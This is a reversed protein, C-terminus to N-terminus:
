RISRPGAVRTGDVTSYNVTVAQNSAASLTVTFTMNTLQPTGANKGKTNLKGETASANAISVTPLPEPDDDIITGVGQGDTISANTVSTINLFMNETGEFNADDILDVTIYRVQEGANFTMTGTKGWFDSSATASGNATEYAIAVSGDSPESLSVTFQLFGGDESASADSISVTSLSGPDVITGTFSYQGLSGYDSYGTTAPDGKGVGSVHLYYTGASVSASLQADLFDTPNASTVLSGSSNYLEALIDLNPGIEFEQVDISVTGTGTTFSFVDVDAGTEIIGAADISTSTVLNAASATPDFYEASSM